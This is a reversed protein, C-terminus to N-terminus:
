KIKYVAGRTTGLKIIFGQEELKKLDYRIMRATVKTFRRRISDQSMVQHDRILDLIEKRRPLLLDDPAQKVRLKM